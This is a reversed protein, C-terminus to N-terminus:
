ADQTRFRRLIDSTSLGKEYPVLAVPVVGYGVVQEPNYEAAKVVVAPMVKKIAELPTVEDFSVVYDVAELAAVVAMRQELPLVPHGEGKLERASRDTNLAVVLRDGHKSAAEICAAHGAHFVDYVGNTWALKERKAAECLYDVTVYKAKVPDVQRHLEYSTVPENFRKQVYAAGAEFAVGVANQFHVNKAMAMALFAVFCDGAGVLSEVVPKSRPKYWFHYGDLKCSVGDGGQTIAVAQCGLREQFFDCQARWDTLGGSLDRAEEANPKFIRCGKWRDLSTGKKPDVITICDLGDLGDWPSAGDHFVGKDYDSFVVVDQGQIAEDFVKRLLTRDAALLLENCDYSDCELDWRCVPFGDKYLRRKIPNHNENGLSLCHETAIGARECVDIAYNDLLSVLKTQANFHRLQVAVNAAGGPCSRMLRPCSRYVPIPFEPSVGTFDLDYYEDIMSDGVVVIKAPARPVGKFLGTVDM